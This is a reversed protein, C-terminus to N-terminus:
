LPPPPTLGYLKGKEIKQSWKTNEKNMYLNNETPIKPERYTFEKRFGSSKLAEM